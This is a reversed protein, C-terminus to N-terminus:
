RKSKKPRHDLSRMRQLTCELWLKASTKVSDRLPMRSHLTSPSIEEYDSENSSEETKSENVSEKRVKSQKERKPPNRQKRKSCAELEKSKPEKTKHSKARLEATIVAPPISGGPPSRGISTRPRFAMKQENLNHTLRPYITLIM